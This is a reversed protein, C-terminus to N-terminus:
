LWHNPLLFPALDGVSQLLGSVGGVAVTSIAAASGISLHPLLNLRSVKAMQRAQFAHEVEVQTNYNHSFARTRLEALTYVRGITSSATISSNSVLDFKSLVKGSSDYQTFLIFKADACFRITSDASSFCSDDVDGTMKVDSSGIGSLSVNNKRLETLTFSWSQSSVSKDLNQIQIQVDSDNWSTTASVKLAVTKENQNVTATGQYNGDIVDLPHAIALSSYLLLVSFISQKPAKM